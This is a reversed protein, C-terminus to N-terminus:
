RSSAWPGGSPGGDSFQWTDRGSGVSSTATPSVGQPTTPHGAALRRGDCRARRRPCPAARGAHTNWPPHAPIWRSTAPGLSGTGREPRAADVVWLDVGTGVERIPHLGGEHQVPRAVSCSRSSRGGSPLGRSSPRAPQRGPAVPRPLPFVEDEVPEIEVVRWASGCLIEVRHRRGDHCPATSPRGPPPVPETTSRGGAMTRPQVASLQGCHPAALDVRQCNEWAGRVTGPSADCDSRSRSLLWSEPIPSPPMPGTRRADSRRPSSRRSRSGPRPDAEYSPASRPPTSRDPGATVEDCMTSRDSSPEPPHTAWQLHPQILVTVWTRLSARAAARPWAGPVSPRSGSWESIRTGPSPDLAGSGPSAGDFLGRWPRSCRRRRDTMSRPSAPSTHNRATQEHPQLLWGIPAPSVTM